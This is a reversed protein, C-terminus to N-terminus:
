FHVCTWAALALGGIEIDELSSIVPPYGPHMSLIRVANKGIFQLRRIQVQGNWRFLYMGDGVFCKVRTDVQVPDGDDFTGQMSDGRATFVRIANAQRQTEQPLMKMVASM